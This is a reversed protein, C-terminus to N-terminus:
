ILYYQKDCSKIIGKEQLSRKSVEAVDVAKSIFKGRSKITIEEPDIGNRLLIMIRQNDPMDGLINMIIKTDVDKLFRLYRDMGQEQSVVTDFM